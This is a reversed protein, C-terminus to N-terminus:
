QIFDKGQAWELKIKAMTQEYVSESYSKDFNYVEKLTRLASMPLNNTKVSNQYEDKIKLLIDKRKQSEKQWFDLNENANIVEFRITDRLDSRKLDGKRQQARRQTVQTWTDWPIPLKIALSAIWNNSKVDNEVFTNYGVVDYSAGLYINPYSKIMAMNVAIEDIQAKYIESKLESRMEMATILSKNSDITVPHIEFEGLIDVSPISQRGMIKQFTKKALRFDKEYADRESNLGSIFTKIEIAEWKDKKIKSSLDKAQEGWFDSIKLIKKKFLLTYFAKKTDFVVDRQVTEYKVRAEKHATQAIRFTSKNRGGTYIPQFAYARLAYFNESISNDLYRGGFEQPLVMPYELNLRTLTGAFSFQPLAMFRAEKVRQKAIIIDQEASLLTPNNKKSLEVAKTLSIIEILSSDSAAFANGCLFLFVCIQILKKNM